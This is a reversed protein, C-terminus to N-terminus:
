GHYGNLLSMAYMLVVGFSILWPIVFLIISRILKNTEETRNYYYKKIIFCLIAIITPATITFAGLNDCLFIYSFAIFKLGLAILTLLLLATWFNKM